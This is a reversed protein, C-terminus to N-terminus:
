QTTISVWLGDKRLLPVFFQSSKRLLHGFRLKPKGGDGGASFGRCAIRMQNPSLINNIARVLIFLVRQPTKQKKTIKNHPLRFGYDM